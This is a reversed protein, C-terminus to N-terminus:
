TVRASLTDCPGKAPMRGYRAESKVVRLIGQILVIGYYVSVFQINDLGLKSGWKVVM